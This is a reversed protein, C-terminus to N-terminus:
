THEMTIIYCYNLRMVALILYVVAVAVLIASWVEGHCPVIKLSIAVWQVSLQRDLDGWPFPCNKPFHAGM